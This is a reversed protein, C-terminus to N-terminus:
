TQCEADATNLFPRLHHTYPLPARLAEKLVHCSSLLFSSLGLGKIFTQCTGEWSTNEGSRQQTLQTHGEGRRVAGARLGSSGPARPNESHERATNWDGEGPLAEGRPASDELVGRWGLSGVSAEVFLSTPRRKREFATLGNEEVRIRIRIRIRIWAKELRGCLKQGLTGQPPLNRKWRELTSNPSSLRSM